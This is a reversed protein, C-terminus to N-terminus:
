QAVKIQPKILEPLFPIFTKVCKEVITPKLEQVKQYNNLEWDALKFPESKFSCKKSRNESAVEKGFLTSKNYYESRWIEAGFVLRYYDNNNTLSEYVLNWLPPVTDFVIPSIYNKKLLEPNSMAMNKLETDIRVKIDYLPTKIANHDSVNPLEAGIIEDKSFGVLPEPGLLFSVVKAAALATTRSPKTIKLEKFAEDKGVFPLRTDIGTSKREMTEVTSTSACACLLSVLGLVLIKKM